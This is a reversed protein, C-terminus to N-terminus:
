IEQLTFYVPNKHMHLVTVTHWDTCLNVFHQSLPSWPWVQEREQSLLLAQPWKHTSFSANGLLIHSQQVTQFEAM